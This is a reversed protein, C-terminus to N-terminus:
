EDCVIVCVMRRVSDCVSARARIVKLQEEIRGVEEDQRENGRLREKRTVTRRQRVSIVV